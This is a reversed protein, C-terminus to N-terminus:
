SAPRTSAPHVMHQGLWKWIGTNFAKSYPDKALTSYIFNYETAKPSLMAAEKPNYLPTREPHFQVGVVNPFDLRGIAEVIKGDDSTGYVVYGPGLKNIAQHHICLVQPEHTGRDCADLMFAPAGPLLHLPHMVGNAVQESVGLEHSHNRHWTTPSASLAAEVTEQHYLQTPIDQWLTGGAAVNMTQMGVCIGLIPYDQRTALLPRVDNARSSGLLQVLLAVEFTHRRPTEVQTSMLQPEGYLSPQIDAGGNFVMGSSHALIDAFEERCDNARYVDDSTLKCHVPRLSIWDIKERALYARTAAYDEAESEHYIGVIKLDHVQLVHSRVLTIYHKVLSQTPHTIVLVPRKAVPPPGARLPQALVALTALALMTALAAKALLPRRDVAITRVYKM